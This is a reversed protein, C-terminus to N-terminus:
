LQTKRAAHRFALIVVEKEMMKYFILYPYPSVVMRRVSIRSTTQGIQPYRELLELCSKLRERVRMQAHPNREALYDLLNDLDAFAEPTYKLSM